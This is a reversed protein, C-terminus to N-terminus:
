RAHTSKGCWPCHSWYVKTIGWRCGQCTESSEPLKWKRQVKRHCWPCYRMFPMLTRRTCAHNSCRGDYHVDSYERNSRPGQVGTFCWPCFRWDLKMGRHCKKCRSPFRSDIKNMRLTVGCWPCHHMVESVPGECKRCTERTALVRGYVRRFEAQRMAQWDKATTKSSQRKNRKRTAHALVHPKVRRFAALMQTADEFRKKEDLELARKLFANLDAHVKRRLIDYGPPPWEYPWKPLIGTLMRYLILGVSFCDSRFSPKGMAQEPALWGVTGSGSASMTRLSIKAIGFDTLRLKEEPFLLINEPKVDCHIIYRQHAYDLAQLIQEAYSLALRLGIRKQLREGLSKEALPYVIIFREDIFDATKITMINPHDLQATLRAERKFERMTEPTMLHAFPVKLAVPVGEITDRARYV